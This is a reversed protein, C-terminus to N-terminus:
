SVATKVAVDPQVPPYRFTLLIRTGENPESDIKIEGGLRQAREQMVILGIHEGGQDMEKSGTIGIGDDEILVRHEGGATCRLM